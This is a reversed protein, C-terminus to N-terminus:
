TRKSKLIKCAENVSLNFDLANDSYIHHGAFPIIVIETYCSNPRAEKIIKGYKNDMWSKEGYLFTLPIDSSMDSLVREGMPHKAWPGGDLLNRFAEEGSPNGSNLIFIYNM